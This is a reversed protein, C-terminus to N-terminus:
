LLPRAAKKESVGARFAAAALLVLGAIISFAAQFGLAGILVRALGKELLGDFRNRGELMAGVDIITM